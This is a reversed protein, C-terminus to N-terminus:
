SCCWSFLIMVIPVISFSSLLFAWKLGLHKNCSPPCFSLYNLTLNHKTFHAQSIAFAQGQILFYNISHYIIFWLPSSKFCSLFWPSLNNMIIKMRVFNMNSKPIHSNVNKTCFCSHPLQHLSPEKLKFILWSPVLLTHM